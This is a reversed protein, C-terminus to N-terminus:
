VQILLARFLMRQQVKKATSVKMSRSLEKRIIKTLHLVSRLAEIIFASCIVMVSASIGFMSICILFTVEVVEIRARKHYLAFWLLGITPKWVLQQM